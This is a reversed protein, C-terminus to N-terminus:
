MQSLFGTDVYGMNDRMHVHRRSGNPIDSSVLDDLLLAKLSTNIVSVIVQENLTLNELCSKHPVKIVSSGACQLFALKINKVIFLYKLHSYSLFLHNSIFFISATGVSWALKQLPPICSFWSGRNVEHKERGSEVSYCKTM